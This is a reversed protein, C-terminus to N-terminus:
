SLGEPQLGVALERHPPTSVAVAVTRLRVYSKPKHPSVDLPLLLRRWQPFCVDKFLDRKMAAYRDDLGVLFQFLRINQERQNFIEIDEAHKMPNPQRHDIERWIQQLNGYYQELSLQGQQQRGARTMLDYIQLSDSGSSYTTALGEWLAKATPYEIFNAVLHPELAQIIM